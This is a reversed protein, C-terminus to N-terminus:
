EASLVTVDRQGHRDDGERPDGLCQRRADADAGYEGGAEHQGRASKKYACSGTCPCYKQSRNGANRSLPMPSASANTGIDIPASVPTCCDSAPTADPRILVLWCIPPAIADSRGRRDRRREARAVHVRMGAHRREASTRQRVAELDREVHESPDCRGTRHQRCRQRFRARDRRNHGLGDLRLEHQFCRSDSATLWSALLTRM